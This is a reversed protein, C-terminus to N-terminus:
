DGLESKENLAAVKLRLETCWAFQPIVKSSFDCLHLYTHDIPMREKLNSTGKLDDWLVKM